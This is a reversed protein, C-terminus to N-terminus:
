SGAVPTLSFGFADMKLTNTAVWTVTAALQASRLFNGGTAADWLSVDTIVEQVGGNTWSPQNTIVIAGNAPTGFTVAKRSSSGASVFATGSYGPPGTHLQLYPTSVSFSTGGFTGLLKNALYLSMGDAM